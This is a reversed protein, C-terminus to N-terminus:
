CGRIKELNKQFHRLAEESVEHLGYWARDFTAVSEAFAAQLEPTGRTRRRLEQEYDRNSKFKAIRILERRALHALGGLYLARLALRLEGKGMLEQALNLWDEEPLQSAVLNEDTLDPVSAVARSVAEVPRRRQRWLRWCFLVVTCAVLVLLVFVLAQLSTMWGSGSRAGGSGLRGRSFVKEVIWNIVEAVWQAGARVWRKLARGWGRLTDVLGDMFAAFFGKRDGEEAIRKERPLRWSYERQRIVQEISRDLEVPSVGSQAARAAPPTPEAAAAVAAFVARRLRLCGPHARGQPCFCQSGPATPAIGPTWGHTAQQPRSPRVGFIEDCSAFLKSWQLASFM